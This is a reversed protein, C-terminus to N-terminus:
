DLKDILRYAAILMGFGVYMGLLAALMLKAMTFSIIEMLSLLIITGALASFSVAIGVVVKLVRGIPM